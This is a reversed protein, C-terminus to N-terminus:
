RPRLVVICCCCCSKMHRTPPKFLYSVDESVSKISNWIEDLVDRQFFSLVFYSVMLSLVLWKGYLHDGALRVNFM